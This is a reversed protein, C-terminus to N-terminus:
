ARHVLVGAVTVAVVRDGDLEVQDQGGDVREELGILKAPHRTAMALLESREFPLHEAAWDLCGRLSRGSGALLGTGPLTLSGDARVEVSGGVPSPYVGPDSGALAASDSTLQPDGVGLAHQIPIETRAPGLRDGPRVGGMQPSLWGLDDMFEATCMSYSSRAAAQGWADHLANDVAGLALLGALRPIEDLGAVRAAAALTEDLREYLPRWLAFPDACQGLSLLQGVFTRVLSRLVRDRVSLEVPSHPWAWPVSLMGAGVGCARVGGGTEVTLRVKPSTLHTLPRGSIVFPPELEVEVFSVEARLARIDSPRGEPLVVDM